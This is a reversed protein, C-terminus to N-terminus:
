RHVGVDMGNFNAVQDFYQTLNEGKIDRNLFGCGSTTPTCREITSVLVGIAVSYYFVFGHPTTVICGATITAYIWVM